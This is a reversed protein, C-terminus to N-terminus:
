MLAPSHFLYSGWEGFPQSAMLVSPTRIELGADLAVRMATGGAGPALMSVERGDEGALLIIRALMDEFLGNCVCAAPGICGAPSVYAYGCVESGRYFLHCPTKQELLLFQHHGTRRMGLVRHDISALEDIYEEGSVARFSVDREAAGNLFAKKPTGGFFYLAQQPYMGHKAYLAISVPNYASTIVSRTACRRSKAYHLGKELLSRGAHRAQHDPHVFLHSLFWHAGRVWSMTAGAVSGGGDLAVWFGEPDTRLCFEYFPNVGSPIRLAGGFGHDEAGKALAARYVEGVGPIDGTQAQRITYGMGQGM